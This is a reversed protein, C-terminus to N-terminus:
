VSPTPWDRLAVQVSLAPLAAVAVSPPMLISLVGGVRTPWREGAGLAAPQLLAFTVSEHAHESTREFPVVAGAGMTSQASPAFWDRAAVHESAAPFTAVSACPFTLMSLVGGPM